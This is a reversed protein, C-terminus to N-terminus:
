RRGRSKGRRRWRVLRWKLTSTLTSQAKEM